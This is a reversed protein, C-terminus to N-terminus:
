SGSSVWGGRAWAGSVVVALVGAVVLGAAMSVIWVGAVILGLGAVFVLGSLADAM